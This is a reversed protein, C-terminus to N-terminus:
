INAAGNLRYLSQGPEAGFGTCKKQNIRRLRRAIQRNDHLATGDVQQRNGAMLPQHPRSPCPQQIHRRM